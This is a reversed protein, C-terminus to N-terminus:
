RHWVKFRKFGHMRPLVSIANIDVSASFCLPFPLPKLPNGDHMRNAFVFGPYESSPAESLEWVL